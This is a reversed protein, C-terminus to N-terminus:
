RRNKAFSFRPFGRSASLVAPFDASKTLSIASVILFIEQKVHTGPIRGPQLGVRDSGSM